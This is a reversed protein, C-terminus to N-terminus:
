ANVLEEARGAFVDIHEAGLAEPVDPEYFFEVCMATEMFMMAMYLLPKQQAPIEALPWQDLHKAIPEIEPLPAKYYATIESMPADIRQRMRADETPLAWARYPTLHTFPEPLPNSM